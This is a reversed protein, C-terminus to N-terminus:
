EGPAMRAAQQSERQHSVLLKQVFRKQRVGCASRVVYFQTYSRVCLVRSLRPRWGQCEM